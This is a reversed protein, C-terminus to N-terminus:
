RHRPRPPAPRRLPDLVHARRPAKVGSSGRGTARALAVQVQGATLPAVRRHSVHHVAARPTQAANAIAHPTPSGSSVLGEALLAIAAAVAATGVVAAPRGVKRRLAEADWELSFRPPKPPPAANLTLLPNPEWSTGAPTAPETERDEAASSEAAEPVWGADDEHHGAEAATFTESPIWRPEAPPTPRAPAPTPAPPSAPMPAPASARAPAPAPADATGQEAVLDVKASGTSATPREPPAWRDLVRRSAAGALALARAQLRERSVRRRAM